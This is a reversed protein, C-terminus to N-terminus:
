AAESLACHPMVRSAFLEMSRMVREHSVMGGFNFWAIVRGVHLEQELRKLQEVCGAPTDFM